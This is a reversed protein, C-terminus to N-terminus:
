VVLCAICEFVTQLPTRKEERKRGKGEDTEEEEKWM